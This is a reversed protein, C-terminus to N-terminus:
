QICASQQRKNQMMAGGSRDSIILHHICQGGVGGVLEEPCIHGPEVQQILVVSTQKFLFSMCGYARVVQVSM